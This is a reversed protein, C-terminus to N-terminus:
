IIERYLLNFKFIWVINQKVWALLTDNHFWSDEWEFAYQDGFSVIEKLLWWFYTPNIIDNIEYQVGKNKEDAM